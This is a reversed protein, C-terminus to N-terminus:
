GVPDTGFFHSVINWNWFSIITGSSFIGSVTSQSRCMQLCGRICKCKCVCLCAYTCVFCELMCIFACVCMICWVHMYVFAFYFLCMACPCVHVYMHMCMYMSMCICMCSHVYRCVCTYVFEVNVHLYKSWWLQEAWKIVAPIEPKWQKCFQHTRTKWFSGSQEKHLVISLDSNEEMVQINAPTWQPWCESCQGNQHTHPPRHPYKIMLTTHISQCKFLHHDTGLAWSHNFFFAKVVLRPCTHAFVSCPPPLWM